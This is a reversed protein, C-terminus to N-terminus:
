GDIRVAGHERLLTQILAAPLHSAAASVRNALCCRSASRTDPPLPTVSPALLEVQGVADTTLLWLGPAIRADDRCRAGQRVLLGAGPPQLLWSGDSQMYVATYQTDAILQPLDAPEVAAAPLAAFLGTLVLRRVLSFAKM